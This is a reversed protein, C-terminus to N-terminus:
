TNFSFSNEGKPQALIFRRVYYFQFVNSKDNTYKAAPVIELKGTRDLM